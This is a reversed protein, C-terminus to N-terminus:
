FCAICVAIKLFCFFLFLFITKRLKVGWHIYASRLVYTNAARSGNVKNKEKNQQTGLLFLVSFFSFFFSLSLYLCIILVPVTKVIVRSLVVPICEVFCLIIKERKAHMCTNIINRRLLSPRWACITYRKIFVACGILLSSMTMSVKYICPSCM